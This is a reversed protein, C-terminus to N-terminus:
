LQLLSLGSMKNNMNYTLALPKATVLLSSSQVNLHKPFFNALRSNLFRGRVQSIPFDYKM